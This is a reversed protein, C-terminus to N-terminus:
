ASGGKTQAIAADCLAAIRYSDTSLDPVKFRPTTNLATVAQQLAALLNPVMDSNRVATSEEALEAEYHHRARHLAADFDFNRADAWHMLDAILDGLSDEHDCRTEKRFARIAKDAWNARDLNTIM